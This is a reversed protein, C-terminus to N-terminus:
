ASSDSWARCRSPSSTNSSTTTVSLKGQACRKAEHRRRARTSGQAGSNALTKRRPSIRQQRLLQKIASPTTKLQNSGATVKAISVHLEQAIERQPKEGQLLAQVIRYRDSLSEREALTFFLSFLQEAQRPTQTQALLWM